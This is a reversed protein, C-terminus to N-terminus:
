DAFRRSLAGNMTSHIVRVSRDVVEEPLDALWRDSVTVLWAADARSSLASILCKDILEDSSVPDGDELDIYDNWTPVVREPDLKIPDIDIWWAIPRMGFPEHTGGVELVLTGRGALLEARIERMGALRGRGRMRKRLRRYRRWERVAECPSLVILVATLIPLVLFAVIAIRLANGADALWARVRM